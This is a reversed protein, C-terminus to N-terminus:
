KKPANYAAFTAHTSLPPPGRGLQRHCCQRGCTVVKQSVMKKGLSPLNGLSVMRERGRKEDGDRGDGFGAEQKGKAEAVM